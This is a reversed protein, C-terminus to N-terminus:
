PEQTLVATLEVAVAEESIVGVYRWREQGQEDVLLMAPHGRVNYSTAWAEGAESTINYRRFDIRNGYREDLGNVVPRM